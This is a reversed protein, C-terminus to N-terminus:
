CDDLVDAETLFRALGDVGTFHHARIGLAHAAAVNDHSDDVFLAEAAGAGALALAQHFYQAAPKAFGVESSNAIAHFADTLGLARLDGPLRTTANTAIVVRLHARRRALLAMVTGDLEGVPESWHAVAEEVFSRPYRRQLEEAVSARWDEDRVAGTIAPLLLEPAFAVRRLAGRPLGCRQELAADDDPWRRVVGDLDILLARFPV